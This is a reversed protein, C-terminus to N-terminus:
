NKFNYLPYKHMDLAFKNMLAFITHLFLNLKIELLLFVGLLSM